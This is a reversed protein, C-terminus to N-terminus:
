PKRTCFIATGPLLAGRLPGWGGWVRDLDGPWEPEVLRELVLGARGIEAVHDGLTRHYEAYRVQDLESEVYPTRDFYSRIATLGRETPDDPFAWRVPHTVAFVWSGRPRLVRAVESHIRNADPVFPIAGFASFAVDISEASLPLARADAQVLPMRSGLADDLRRAAALMGASVDTALVHAGQGLLWRSCQAAGCGVELLRRGRVDGLLRAEAERLGEPSWCFDAAGLFDGHEELYDGAHTDWWSRAARGGVDDPIPAFGAFDHTDSM